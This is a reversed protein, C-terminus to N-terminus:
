VPIRITVSIPYTNVISCRGQSLSYGVTATSGYATYDFTRASNVCRAYSNFRTREGSYSRDCWVSWYPNYSSKYVRCGQWAEVSNPTSFIGVCATLSFLGIILKRMKQWSELFMTVAYQIVM